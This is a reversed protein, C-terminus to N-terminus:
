MQLPPDHAKRPTDPAQDDRNKEVMKRYALPTYSGPDAEIALPNQRLYWEIYESAICGASIATQAISRCIDFQVRGEISQRFYSNAGVLSEMRVMQESEDNSPPIMPNTIFKKIEKTHNLFYRAGQGLPHASPYLAKLMQCVDEVVDLCPLSHRQRVAVINEANRGHLSLMRENLFVQAISALIADCFMPNEDRFRSFPRRVHSLCGYLIIEIRKKVQSSLNFNVRSLDTQLHIRNPSKTNRAQLLTDLLNGFGGLHSRYFVILSNPASEDSRGKILTTKFDIIPGKGDARMSEFGLHAATLLALSPEQDSKEPSELTEVAQDITRYKTWPMEIKNVTQDLSSIKDKASSAINKQMLAHARQIELVLSDTDDGSLVSVNALQRFFHLYLPLFRRAVYAFYRCIESSRFEKEQTSLMLAMRNFPLAYQTTMVMMQALFGWTVKMKPPGIDSVDATFIMKEGNIIVVRKEVLLDIASLQVHFDYRRRNEIFCGIDLADKPLDIDNVLLSKESVVASSIGRAIMQASASGFKPDAGNGLKMCRELDEREAKDQAEEEPTMPENAFVDPDYITELESQLDMSENQEQQKLKNQMKRFKRLLSRVLNKYYTSRERAKLLNYALKEAIERPSKKKDYGPAKLVSSRQKESSPLIGMALLLHRRLKFLRRDKETSAKRADNWYKLLVDFRQALDKDDQLISSIRQSILEIEEATIPRINADLKKNAQAM